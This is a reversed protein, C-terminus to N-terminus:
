FAYSISLQFQASVYYDDPFIELKTNYSKQPVKIWHTGDKTYKTGSSYDGYLNLYLLPSLTIPGITIGFGVIGSILSITNTSYTYQTSDNPYRIHKETYLDLGIDAGAVFQIHRSLQLIRHFELAVKIRYLSSTDYAM